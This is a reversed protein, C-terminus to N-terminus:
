LAHLSNHSCFSPIVLRSSLLALLPILRQQSKPLCILTIRLCCLVAPLPFPNVWVCFTLAWCLLPVAFAISPSHVPYPAYQSTLFSLSLYFSSGSWWPRQVYLWTKNKGRAVSSDFPIKFLIINSLAMEMSLMSIRILFSLEPSHSVQLAMSHQPCHWIDFEACCEWSIGKGPLCLVQSKIIKTNPKGM